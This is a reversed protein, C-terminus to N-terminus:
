LVIQPAKAFYVTFRFNEWIRALRFDGGPTSVYKYKTYSYSYNILIWGM